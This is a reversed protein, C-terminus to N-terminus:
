ECLGKKFLEVADALYSARMTLDGNADREDCANRVAQLEYWFPVAPAVAWEDSRPAPLWRWRKNERGYAHFTPGDHKCQDPFDAAAKLMDQSVLKCVSALQGGENNFLGKAVLIDAVRISMGLTNEPEKLESLAQGLAEVMRRRRGFASLDRYLYETM